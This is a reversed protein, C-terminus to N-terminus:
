LFNPEYVVRVVRPEYVTRVGLSPVQLFNPEYVVRVVRPEYVTRVGLSPVQYGHWACLDMPMFSANGHTSFPIKLLLLSHHGNSNALNTAKHDHTPDKTKAWFTACQKHQPCCTCHHTKAAKRPSLWLCASSYHTPQWTHKRQPQNSCTNFQCCLTTPRNGLLKIYLCGQQYAPLTFFSQSDLVAFIQTGFVTGLNTCFTWPITSLFLQM